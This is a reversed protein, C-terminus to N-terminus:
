RRARIVTEHLLPGAAPLKAIGCIIAVDQAHCFLWHGNTFLTITILLCICANVFCLDILSDWFSLAPRLRRDHAM